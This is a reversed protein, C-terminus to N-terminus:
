GSGRRKEWRKKALESRKEPSMAAWGKAAAKGRAEATPKFTNFSSVTSMKKSFADRYEANASLRNNHIMHQNVKHNLGNRNIYYFNSSGGLKLNYSNPDNVVSETVIESELKFMHDEDNAYFLVETKFQDKGYRKVAQQLLKGSGLYGDSIDETKHAGIYYRGNVLNTTKYIIYFM